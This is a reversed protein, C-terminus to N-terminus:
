MLLEDAKEAKLHSAWPEGGEEYIFYQNEVFDEWETDYYSGTEMFMIYLEDDFKDEFDSLCLSTM